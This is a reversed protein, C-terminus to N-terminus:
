IDEASKVIEARYDTRLRILSEGSESTMYHIISHMPTLHEVTVEDTEFNFAKEKTKTQPETATATTTLLTIAIITILKM